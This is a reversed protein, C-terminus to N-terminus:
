EKSTAHELADALLRQMVAWRAAAQERDTYVLKVQLSDIIGVYAQGYQAIAADDLRAAQACARLKSCFTDHLLDLYREHGEDIAVRLEAPPTYSTRLLFHLPENSAYRAILSAAYGAGPTAVGDDEDFCRAVTACEQELAQKFVEMYLADKNAFHAYLSPKRIGVASAIHTLSSGDYGREAFHASAAELIRDYTPSRAQM